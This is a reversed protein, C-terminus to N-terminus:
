INEAMKILDTLAYVVSFVEVLTRGKNFIPKSMEGLEPDGSLGTADVGNARILEARPSDELYAKQWQVIGLGDPLDSYLVMIGHNDLVTDINDSRTDYDVSAPGYIVTQVIFDFLLKFEAGKPLSTSIKVVSDSADSLKSVGEIQTGYMTELNPFPTSRKQGELSESYKGVYPLEHTTQSDLYLLATIGMAVVTGLVLIKSLM